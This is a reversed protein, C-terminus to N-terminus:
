VTVLSPIVRKALWRVLLRDIQDRDALFKPLFRRHLYVALIIPDILAVHNSLFLIGGGGGASIERAGRVVVKYRLWLLSKVWLSLLFNIM